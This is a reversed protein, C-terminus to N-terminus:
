YFSVEDIEFEVSEKQMSVAVISISALKSTDLKTQASWGRKMSEFPVDVVYFQGDAYVPIPASHYDFNSIQTSNASINLVGQKVRLRIRVGEYQNADAQSHMSVLPLVLSSWAPQGRAPMMDGKAKLLGDEVIFKIETNGGSSRDDFFLRTFALNNKSSDEFDDVLSPLTASLASALTTLFAISTMIILQSFKM